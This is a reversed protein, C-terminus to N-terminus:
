RLEVIETNTVRLAKALDQLRSKLTDSDPIGETSRVELRM